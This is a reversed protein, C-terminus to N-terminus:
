QRKETKDTKILYIILLAAGVSIGSDAVNFVPWIQFDLFDVVCGLRLRDALNGLIGGLIIGLSVTPLITRGLAKKSFFVIYVIAIISIVIFFFNQGKLIGFAAGTNEVYTIHFINNIVPLSEGPLMNNAIIYKSIQDLILLVLAIVYIIMLSKRFM